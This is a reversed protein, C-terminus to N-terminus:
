KRGAELVGEMERWRRRLVGEAVRRRVVVDLVVVDLRKGSFAVFQAGNEREPGRVHTQRVASM